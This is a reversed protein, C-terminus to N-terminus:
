AQNATKVANIVNSSQGSTSLCVLLDGAVGVATIYRAFVQEFGFDNGVCSLHAPDSIAVAALPQRPQYFKGSLEQALHMADCMSGGNGCTIIKNGRQLTKAMLQALKLVQQQNEDSHCFDNLTQQAAYFSQKIIQTAAM